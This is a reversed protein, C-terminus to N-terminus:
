PDYLPPFVEVGASGIGLLREFALTTIKIAGFNVGPMRSISLRRSAQNSAAKELRTKHIERVQEIIDSYKAVTQRTLKAARAISVFTLEQGAALLNLAAAKIRDRSGSRKCRHTRRAARSQRDALPLSPDLSMVGRNKLYRASKNPDGAVRWCYDVISRVVARVQSVQLNPKGGFEPRVAFTNHKMAIDFFRQYFARYGTQGYGYYQDVMRYAIFRTAHFLWLHRSHTHSDLLASSAQAGYRRDGLEVYENLESLDYQDDHVCVTEWRPHFPTKSVPGGAYEPDAGLTSAMAQYVARAYDVPHRRGHLYVPSIAYYWHATGTEPDRVILNPPPLGADEWHGFPVQNDFDFILWARFDKRCATLYPYRVALDRPRSLSANNAASCRPYYPLWQVFREWLSADIDAQLSEPQRPLDPKQVNSHYAKELTTV